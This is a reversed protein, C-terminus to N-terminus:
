FARSKKRKPMPPREVEPADYYDSPHGAVRAPDFVEKPFNSGYQDIKFVQIVRELIYPNSWDRSGQIHDRISRGRKRLEHLAQVRELIEPDPEGEPSPPLAQADDEGDSDGGAGSSPSSACRPGSEEPSGSAAPAAQSSGDQPSAEVVAEV